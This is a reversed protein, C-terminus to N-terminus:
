RQVFSKKWQFIELVDQVRLALQGKAFVTYTSKINFDKCRKSTHPNTYREESVFTM